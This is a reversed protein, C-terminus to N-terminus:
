WYGKSKKGRSKKSKAVKLPKMKLPRMKPAKFRPAKINVNVRSLGGMKVGAMGKFTTKGAKVPKQQIAVTTRPLSAKFESGSTGGAFPKFAVGGLMSYNRWTKTDPVGPNYSVEGGGGGGRPLPMRLRGSYDMGGYKYRYGYNYDYNYGYAEVNKNKNGYGTDDHLKFGV